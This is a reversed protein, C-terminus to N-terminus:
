EYADKSTSLIKDLDESPILKKWGSTFVRLEAITQPNINLIEYAQELNVYDSDAIKKAAENIKKYDSDPFNKVYDFTRKQIHDANELDLKSLIDKVQSLSIITVKKNKM